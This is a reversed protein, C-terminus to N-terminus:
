LCDKGKEGVTLLISLGEDIFLSEEALRETCLIHRVRSFCRSFLVRREVPHFCTTFVQLSSKCHECLVYSMHGNCVKGPDLSKGILTTHAKSFYTATKGCLLCPKKKQKFSFHRLAGLIFASMWGVCIAPAGESTGTRIILPKGYASWPVGYGFETYFRLVAKTLCTSAFSYKASDDLNATHVLYDEVLAAKFCSPCYCQASCRIQDMFRYLKQVEFKLFRGCDYCYLNKGFSGINKAKLPQRGSKVLM